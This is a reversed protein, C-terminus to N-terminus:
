NDLRTVDYGGSVGLTIWLETLVVGKNRM